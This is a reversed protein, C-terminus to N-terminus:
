EHLEDKADGYQGYSGYGYYNVTISVRGQNLVLSVQAAGVQELADLVAQCPTEGSRVVLVVHGVIAALVRSESSVLLPPSDFLVIRRPNRALLRTVVASMRASALLETAGEDTTGAPLISLGGVDTPLVFSEVDANPNSLADLLGPEDEVGFIRSVHPKPTDADVLVVSIDRERAM